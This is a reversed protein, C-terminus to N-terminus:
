HRPRCATSSRCTCQGHWCGTSYLRCEKSCCHRKRRSRWWEGSARHCQWWGSRRRPQCGWDRLTFQAECIFGLRKERGRRPAPKKNYPRNLVTFSCVSFKKSLCGTGSVSSITCTTAQCSARPTSHEIKALPQSPFLLGSSAACLAGTLHSRPASIRTFMTGSGRVSGPPSLSGPLAAVPAGTLADPTHHYGTLGMGHPIPLNPHYCPKKTTGSANHM